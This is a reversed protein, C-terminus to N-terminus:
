IVKDLVRKWWLKFVELLPFEAVDRCFNNWHNVIQESFVKRTNLYFMNTDSRVNLHFMNTVNEKEKPQAM